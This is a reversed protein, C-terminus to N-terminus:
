DDLIEGISLENAKILVCVKDGVSLHMRKSSSLTIISELIADFYSLKISSLLQGNDISVIQSNLQNSYSMEGSLDKAIATHTPKIVLKVHAGIKVNKNLDLSMMSLTEGHFDFKVIHLSECSEIHSVTALITSM